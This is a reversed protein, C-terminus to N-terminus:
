GEIMGGEIESLRIEMEDYRGEIKNREIAVGEIMYGEVMDRKIIYRM